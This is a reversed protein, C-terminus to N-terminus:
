KNPPKGSKRGKIKEPVASKLKPDFKLELVRYKDRVRQDALRESVQIAGVYVAELRRHFYNWFTGFGVIVVLLWQIGGAIRMPVTNPLETVYVPIFISCVAAKAWSLTLGSVRAIGFYVFSFLMAVYVYICGYFLLVLLSAWRSVLYKNKLFRAVKEWVGLQQWLNKLENDEPTKTTVASLKMLMTDLQTFIARGVKELWSRSFVTWKLVSVIRGALNCVLVVFSLWLVTVHSTVLLLLCWLLTFKRFPRSAVSLFSHSRPVKQLEPKNPAPLEIQKPSPEPPETAKPQDKNFWANVARLLVILLYACLALVVFPFFYIYALSKLTKWFGSASIISFLFLLIFLTVESSTLNLYRSLRSVLPMQINLLFLAHLWLFAALM